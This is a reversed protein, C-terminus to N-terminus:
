GVVEGVRGGRVKKGKVSDGIGEREGHRLTIESSPLNRCSPPEGPWRRRRSTTFDVRVGSSTRRRTWRFVSIKQLPVLRLREEWVGGGCLRRRQHHFLLLFFSHEIPRLCTRVYERRRCFGCQYNM